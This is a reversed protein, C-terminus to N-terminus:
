RYYNLFIDSDISIINDIKIISKNLVLIKNYEDIKKINDKVCVYSGGQKVLDEVFYTVIILPKNKINEKIIKITQIGKLYIVLNNEKAIKQQREKLYCMFLEKSDKESKSYNDLSEIIEDIEIQYINYINLAEKEEKTLCAATNRIKNIDAELEQIQNLLNAELMIKALQSRKTNEGEKIIDLEKEIFEFNLM